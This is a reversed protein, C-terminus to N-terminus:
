LDNGDFFRFISLKLQYILLHELPMMFLTTSQISFIRSVSSCSRKGTTGRDRTVSRLQLSLVLGLPDVRISGSIFASPTQTFVVAEVPLWMSSNKNTSYLFFLQIKYNKEAMYDCNQLFCFVVTFISYNCFLICFAAHFHTTKIVIQVWLLLDNM